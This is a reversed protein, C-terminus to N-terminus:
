HGLKIKALLGNQNELVRRRKDAEFRLQGARRLAEIRESGGPLKQAASLAAEAARWQEDLETPVGTIM